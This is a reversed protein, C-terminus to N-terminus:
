RLRTKLGSHRALWADVEAVQRLEKVQGYEGRAKRALEV